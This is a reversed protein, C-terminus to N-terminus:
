PFSSSVKEIEARSINPPITKIFVQHPAPTAPILAQGNADNKASETGGNAEEAPTRKEDLGWSDDGYVYAGEQGLEALFAEEKGKRALKKIREREAAFEPKPSYKEQFWQTGKHYLFM